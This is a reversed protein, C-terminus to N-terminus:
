LTGCVVDLPCVGNNIGSVVMLFTFLGIQKITGNHDYSRM